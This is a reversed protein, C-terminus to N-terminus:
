KLQANGRIPVSSQVQYLGSSEEEAMNETAIARHYRNFKMENQLHYPWFDHKYFTKMFLQYMKDTRPKGWGYLPIKIKQCLRTCRPSGMLTNQISRYVCIHKIKYKLNTKWSGDVHWFMTHPTWASMCGWVLANLQVSSWRVHIIKYRSNLYKKNCCFVVCGAGYNDVTLLAILHTIKHIADILIKDSPLNQLINKQYKTM